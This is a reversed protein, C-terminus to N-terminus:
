QETQWANVQESLWQCWADVGEGTKASIPFITLKPNRALAYERVKKLDFDFYPLVDIKNIILADCVQFILPYKLPKDHGEPVSLIMANKVAGTDFEAPCVLNGVNEIFLLTDKVALEDFASSVMRADLHCGNHTNIQIAPIGLNRIRGADNDTHQDGEIVAIKHFGREGLRKITNELLTTKGSGPSSVLNIAWCDTTNWINRNQGAIRNNESLIDQEVTIDVTKGHGHAIGLRHMEEHSMEQHGCGCTTCM